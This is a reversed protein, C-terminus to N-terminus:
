MRKRICYSIISHHRRATRSAKLEYPYKDRTLSGPRSPKLPLLKHLIHNPNKIEDFLRMVAQERRVSLLQLGSVSLADSYSLYPFIIHMCRRQVHEIDDSLSKSLGSHWAQSAYELVPRVLACYIKVIDDASFGCRVLHCIAFIRKSAKSVIYKVHKTWTLDSSLIVGLIKFELVRDIGCGDSILSICKDMKVRSGFTIVMEKTKTNNLHM